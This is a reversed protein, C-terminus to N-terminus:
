FTPAIMFQFVSEGKSNFETDALPFGWEFRLPGMPSYWRIGWGYNSLLAPSKATVDGAWSNGIDFFAVARINAEPILPFELEQNWVMKHTGGIVYPEVSPNSGVRTGPLRKITGISGGDYGRLSSVGGLIYRESDPVNGPDFFNTIYGVELRTRYVLKWIIRHYFRASAEIQQFVRGGLGAAEIGTFLYLGKSPDLRNNRTDYTLDLGLSSIMTDQDEPRSFIDPNIPERLQTNSLKYRGALLWYEAIEQGLRFGVGKSDQFYTYDQDNQPGVRRRSWYFNTGFLWDSDFIKPDTFGVDINMAKSSAWSAQLSVDQGRGFLNSQTVGAQFSFGADNGYGAQLNLTGTPKEKVRIELDMINSQNKRTTTLFKIDEDFFGLRKINSVSKKRRTAHTLEGEVFKLERRIVKDHTKTNGTVKIEGWYIKEGKQIDIVLAVKQENSKVNPRPIVNAFAYGEDGYLDGLALLGEQLVGTSFVDGPKMGLAERLKEESFIIDGRFEVDELYFKEGEQIDVLVDIYRRDQSLTVRPKTIKAEIYGENGYFMALANVDREFFDDRFTGGGTAWSFMHGESTFMAQKLEGTAIKKNGLLYIKRIKVQENEQITFILQVESGDKRTPVVEFRVQALYYGKDEYKKQIANVATQIESYSLVRYNKLKAAEALDKTEFESSGVYDIKAVYPREVLKVILKKGNLEVQVDKFFGLSFINQIDRRIAERTIAQGPRLSMKEIVAARDIRNNGQIEIEQFTEASLASHACFTFALIVALAKLSKFIAPKRHM